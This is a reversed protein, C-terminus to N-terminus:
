QKVSSAPLPMNVPPPAQPAAGAAPSSSASPPVPSLSTNMRSLDLERSASAAEPSVAGMNAPLPLLMGDPGIMDPTSVPYFGMMEQPNVIESLSVYGQSGDEFEVKAFLDGCVLVKANKVDGRVTGSTSFNSEPNQQFVMMKEKKFTVSEGPKYMAQDAKNKAAMKKSTIGVPDLASSQRDWANVHKNTGCSALLVLLAYPLLALKM